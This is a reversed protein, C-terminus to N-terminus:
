YPHPVFTSTLEKGPKPLTIIANLLEKAFRSSAANLPTIQNSFQKYYEGTLSNPGPAKGSPLLTITSLIELETFPKNLSLEVKTLTPLTIQLFATITQPNFHPPTKDLMTFTVIISRM